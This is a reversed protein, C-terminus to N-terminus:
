EAEVREDPAGNSSDDADDEADSGSSTVDQEGADEEQPPAVECQKKRDCGYNSLTLQVARNFFEVKHRREGELEGDDAPKEKVMEEPPRWPKYSVNFALGQGFEYSTEERKCLERKGFLQVEYQCAKCKEYAEYKDCAECVKCKECAQCKYGDDKQVLFHVVEEARRNAIECNLKAQSLGGGVDGGTMEPVGVPANSAFGRVIVTPRCGPMKEACEELATKFTRLWPLSVHDDLCIGSGDRLSGQKVHAISYVGGSRLSTSFASLGDGAGGGGAVIVVDPRAQLEKVSKLIDSEAYARACHYFAALLLLVLGFFLKLSLSSLKAATPEIERLYCRTKALSRRLDFRPLWGRGMKQFEEGMNRLSDLVSKRGLGLLSTAVGLHAILGFWPHGILNILSRSPDDLLFPSLIWALLLLVLLLVLIFSISAAFIGVVAALYVLVKALVRAIFHFPYLVFELPMPWPKSVANANSSSPTM